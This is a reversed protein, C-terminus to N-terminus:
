PRLPKLSSPLASLLAKCKSPRNCQARSCFTLRAVTFFGSLWGSLTASCLIRVSTGTSPTLSRESPGCRVGRAEGTGNTNFKLTLKRSASTEPEEVRSRKKSEQQEEKTSIFLPDKDKM